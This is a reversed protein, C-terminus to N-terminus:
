QISTTCQGGRDVVAAKFEATRFCCQFEISIAKADMAFAYRAFVVRNELGVTEAVTGDVVYLIKEVADAGAFLGVRWDFSPHGCGASSM